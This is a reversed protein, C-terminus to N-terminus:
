RRSRHQLMRRCRPQLRLILNLIFHGMNPRPGARDTRRATGGVGSLARSDQNKFGCRKQMWKWRLHLLTDTCCLMMSQYVATSVWVALCSTAIVGLGYLDRASVMGSPSASARMEGARAEQEENQVKRSKMVLIYGHMM